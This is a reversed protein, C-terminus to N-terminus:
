ECWDVAWQFTTFASFYEWYEPYWGADEWDVVCVRANQLRPTTSLGHDIVTLNKKQVDAHTLTPRHDRLVQGLHRFYFDEKFDQRQNMQQIFKYQNILAGNFDSESQFPGTIEVDNTPSYFLFHPVPGGDVVGLFNSWPCTTARLKAFHIQLDQSVLEKEADTMERWVSELSNGAIREMVVFTEGNDKFM